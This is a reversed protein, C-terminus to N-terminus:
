SHHSRLEHKRRPRPPADLLTFRGTIDGPLSRRRRRPAAFPGPLLRRAPDMGGATLRDTGPEFQYNWVTQDLVHGNYVQPAMAGIVEQRAAFEYREPYCPDVLNRYCDCGGALAMGGALGLVAMSKNIFGKM